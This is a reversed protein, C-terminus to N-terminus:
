VDGRSKQVHFFGADPYTVGIILQPGDKEEVLVGKLNVKAPKNDIM